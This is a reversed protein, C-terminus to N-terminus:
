DVVNRLVYKVTFAFAAFGLIVFINTLASGLLGQNRPLAAAGAQEMKNSSNSESSTSQNVASSAAQKLEEERQQIEQRIDQSLSLFPVDFMPWSHYLFVGCHGGGGWGGKVQVTERQTM